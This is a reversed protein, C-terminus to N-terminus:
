GSSAGRRPARKRTLAYPDDGGSPLFWSEVAGADMGIGDDSCRLEHRWELLAPARLRRVARKWESAFEPDPAGFRLMIRGSSRGGLAIASDANTV